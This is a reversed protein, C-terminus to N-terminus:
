LQISYQVGRETIINASQVAGQTVSYDGYEGGKWQLILLNLVRGVNSGQQFDPRPFRRIHVDHWEESAPLECDARICRNCTFVTVDHGSAALDEALESFLRASVVTDPWFFHYILLIRM